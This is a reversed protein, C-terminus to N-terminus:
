ILWLTYRNWSSWQTSLPCSATINWKYVVIIM